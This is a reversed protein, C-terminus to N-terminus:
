FGQPPQGRAEGRSRGLTAEGERLQTVAGDSAAEVSVAAAMRNTELYGRLGQALAAPDRGAPVLMRFAAEGKEVRAWLTPMAHNGTFRFLVQVEPPLEKLRYRVHVRMANPPAGLQRLGPDALKLADVMATRDTAMGGSVTALSDVTLGGGPPPAQLFSDVVIRPLVRSTATRPTLLHPLEVVLFDAV